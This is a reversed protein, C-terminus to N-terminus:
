GIADELGEDEIEINYEDQIELPEFEEQTEEQQESGESATTDEGTDKETDTTVQETQDTDEKQDTKANNKTCSALVLVVLCSLFMLLVKKM